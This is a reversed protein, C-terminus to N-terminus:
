TVGANGLETEDQPGNIIRQLEVIEEQPGNIIRQLEVIEEETLVSFLVRGVELVRNVEEVTVKPEIPRTPNTKQDMKDERYPRVLPNPLTSTVKNRDM